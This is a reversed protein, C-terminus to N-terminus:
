RVVMFRATSQRRGQSLRLTYVSPALARTQDLSLAYSGPREFRLERSVLSRGLLDFVELRAPDAGPLRVTLALAGSTPNPRLEALALALSPTQPGAGLVAPDSAYGQCSVVTAGQPLGSFTLTGTEDVRGRYNQSGLRLRLHFPAEALPHLSISVTRSISGICCSGPPWFFGASDTDTAISLEYTFNGQPVGPYVNWSGTVQFQATVEVPTGAPLGVVRYEDSTSVLSTAWGPDNFSVNSVLRGQGLDFAGHAHLGTTDLATRNTVVNVGSLLIQSDPCGDAAAAKAALVAAAALPVFGNLRLRLWPSMRAHLTM